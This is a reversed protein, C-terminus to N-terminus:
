CTENLGKNFPTIYVKFVKHKIFVLKFLCRLFLNVMVPLFGPMLNILRQQETFLRFHRHSRTNAKGIGDIGPLIHISFDVPSPILKFLM